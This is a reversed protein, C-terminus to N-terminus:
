DGGGFSDGGGLDLGGRSSRPGRPRLAPLLARTAEDAVAEARTALEPASLGSDPLLHQALGLSGVLATLRAEDRAAPRGAVLVERLAEALATRPGPDATTWTTSRFVRLFRGDTRTLVGRRDLRALVADELGDAVRRLVDPVKTPAGHAGLRVLAEDLLEDGTTTADEVTVRARRLAAPPHVTLRGRAELDLVLAAAVHEHSQAHVRRYGSSTLNLLALKEATLM